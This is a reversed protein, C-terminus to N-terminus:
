INGNNLADFKVKDELEKKTILKVTFNKGYNSDWIYGWSKYNDYPYAAFFAVQIASAGEPIKIVAGLEGAATPKLEVDSCSQWFDYSYRMYVSCNNDFLVEKRKNDYVIRAKKGAILSGDIIFHKYKKEEGSYTFYLTATTNKIKKVAESAAAPARFAMLNFIVMMALLANLTNYNIYNFM